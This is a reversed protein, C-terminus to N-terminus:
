RQHARRVLRARVGRNRGRYLLVMAALFLVAAGTGGWGIWAATNPAAFIAARGDGTEEDVEALYAALHVAEQRTVPRSGYAARMLPFGPTGAASILAQEGLRTAADTLDAALTGGRVRGPGGARHCASCAVGGNALARGGHFLAEGAAPSAPELTAAMEMVQRERAASLRPKVESDKLLEVLFAVEDGTMPGVNKEMREVAKALDLEPWGTAPGLDPGSLEGEGITHCGACRSLYFDAALDEQPPEPVAEETAAGAEALDASDAAPSGAAPAPEADSAEGTGVPAETGEVAPEPDIAVGSEEPPPASDEAAQAAALPTGAPSLVAAFFALALLIAPIRSAHASM